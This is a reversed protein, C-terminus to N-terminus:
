VYKFDILWISREHPDSPIIEDLPGMEEECALVSKANVAVNGLKFSIRGKQKSGTVDAYCIM